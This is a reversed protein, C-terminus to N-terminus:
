LRSSHQIGSSPAVFFNLPVVVISPRCSPHQLSSLRQHCLPRLARPPVSLHTLRFSEFGERTLKKYETILNFDPDDQFNRIYAIILRILGKAGKHLRAQKGDSTYALTNIDQETLTLLSSITDIGEEELSQHIPSGPAQGIVNELIFTLIAAGAEATYAMTSTVAQQISILLRVLLHWANVASKVVRQRSSLSRFGLFSLVSIWQLVLGIIVQFYRPVKFPHDLL